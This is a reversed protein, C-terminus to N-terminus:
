FLPKEDFKTKSFKSKLFMESYEFSIIEKGHIEDCYLVGMLISVDYNNDYYVYIKKTKM